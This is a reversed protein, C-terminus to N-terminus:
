PWACPYPRKKGVATAIWPGRSVVSLSAIMGTDSPLGSILFRNPSFPSPRAALREDRPWPHAHFSSRYSERDQDQRDRKLRGHGPGPISEGQARIGPRPREANPLVCRIARSGAARLLWRRGPDPLRPQGRQLRYGAVHRDPRRIPVRKVLIIGVAKPGPDGVQFCAESEVGVREIGIEQGMGKVARGIEIAGPRQAHTEKFGDGVRQPLRSLSSNPSVVRGLMSSRIRVVVAPIQM